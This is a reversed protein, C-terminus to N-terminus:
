EYSLMDEPYSAEARVTVTINPLIIVEEGDYNDGGSSTTNTTTACLSFSLNLALFIVTM